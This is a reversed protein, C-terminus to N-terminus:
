GHRRAVRDGIYGTQVTETRESAPLLDPLAHLFALYPEPPDVPEAAGRLTRARVRDAVEEALRTKGGGAEACLFWLEGRGAAARRWADTLLRLESERELLPPAARGTSM